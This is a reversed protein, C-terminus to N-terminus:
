SKFPQKSNPTWVVKSTQQKSLNGIQELLKKKVHPMRVATKRKFDILNNGMREIQAYTCNSPDMFRYINGTTVKVDNTTM